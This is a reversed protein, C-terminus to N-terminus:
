EGQPCFLEFRGEVTTLPVDGSGDDIREAVDQTDHIVGVVQLNEVRGLFSSECGSRLFTIPRLIPHGTKDIKQSSNRSFRCGARTDPMLFFILSENGHEAEYFLIM